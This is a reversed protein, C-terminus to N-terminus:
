KTVREVEYGMEKISKLLLPELVELKASDKFDFTLYRRDKSKEVFFEKYIVSNRLIRSLKKFDQKQKPFYIEVIM